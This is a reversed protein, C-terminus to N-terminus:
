LRGKGDAQNLLAQLSPALRTGATRRAATLADDLERFRRGQPTTPPMTDDASGDDLAAQRARAATIVSQNVDHMNM